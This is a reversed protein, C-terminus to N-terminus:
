IGENLQLLIQNNPVLGSCILISSCRTCSDLVFENGFHLAWSIKLPFWMNPYIQSRGDRLVNVRFMFDSLSDRSCHGYDFFNSMKQILVCQLLFHFSSTKLATM